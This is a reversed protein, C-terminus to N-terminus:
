PAISPRGFDTYLTEFQGDLDALPGNVVQRIKRLPHRAPIRVELDMYSFLSGGRRDRADEGRGNGHFLHIM